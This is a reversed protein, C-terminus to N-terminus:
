ICNQWISLLVVTCCNCEVEVRHFVSILSIPRRVSLPRCEECQILSIFSTMWRTSMVGEGSLFHQPTRKVKFGIDHHLLQIWQSNDSFYVPDSVLTVTVRSEEWVTIVTAQTSMGSFIVYFTINTLFSKVKVSQLLLCLFFSKLQFKLSGICNPTSSSASVNSLAFFFFHCMLLLHDGKCLRRLSHLLLLPGCYLLAHEIGYHSSSTFILFRHSSCCIHSTKRLLLLWSVHFSFWKKVWFANKKSGRRRLETTGKKQNGEDFFLTCVCIWAFSNIFIIFTFLPM